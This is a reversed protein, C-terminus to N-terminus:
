EGTDTTPVDDEAKRRVQEIARKLLPVMDRDLEPRCDPCERWILGHPCETMGMDCRWM